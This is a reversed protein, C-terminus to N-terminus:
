RKWHGPVWVHGRGHKEWHGPVWHGKPKTAWYGSKWVYTNGNWKWHGSVWVAKANPKAPKVEVKSPPPPGPAYVTAACGLSFAALAIVGVAILYVRKM